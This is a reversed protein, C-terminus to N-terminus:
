CLGPFLSLAPGPSSLSFPVVEVIQGLDDVYM